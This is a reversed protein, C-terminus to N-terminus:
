KLTTMFPPIERKNRRVTGVITLKDNVLLDEALPISVFWNDCTINRGSKSIHKVMRKVIAHPTNECEYPGAPQKGCYVELHSTYFCKRM